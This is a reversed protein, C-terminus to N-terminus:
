GQITMQITIIYFYPRCSVQKKTQLACFDQLHIHFLRKVRTTGVLGTFLLSGGMVEIPRTGEAGVKGVFKAASLRSLNQTFEVVQALQGGAKLLHQSM